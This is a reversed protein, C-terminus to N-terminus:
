GANTVYHEPFTGAGSLFQCWPHAAAFSKKDQYAIARCSGKCSGLFVCTACIGGIGHPITSRAERLVPHNRWVDALKATRIHGLVLGDESYGIGCFSLRGDALLGMVNLFPCTGCGAEAIQRLSFFAPPGELFLSLGHREALRTERLKTFLEHVAVPDLMDGRARTETADGLSNVPNLKWGRVGHTAVLSAIGELDHLNRRSVATIVKLPGGAAVVHDIAALAADFAGKRGRLRDHLERTCGDLSISIQASVRALSFAAEATMGTGNSEISIRLGKEAARAVLELLDSRLFPEGGTFKVSRLGLPLADDILRLIQDTTPEGDEVFPLNSV